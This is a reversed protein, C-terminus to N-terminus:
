CLYVGKKTLSALGVCTGVDARFFDWIFGEAMNVHFWRLEYILRSQWLFLQLQMHLLLILIFIKKVTGHMMMVIIIIRLLSTLIDRFFWRWRRWYRVKWRRGIVRWIVGDDRTWRVNSSTSTYLTQLLEMLGIGIANFHTTDVVLILLMIIHANAITFRRYTYQLM